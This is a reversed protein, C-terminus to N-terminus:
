EHTQEGSRPKKRRMSFGMSRGGVDESRASSAHLPCGRQSNGDCGFPGNERMEMGAAAVADM